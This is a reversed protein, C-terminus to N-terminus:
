DVKADQEYNAAPRGPGDPRAALFFQGARGSCNKKRGPEARTIKKSGARDAYNKDPGARSTSIKDAGHQGPGFRAAFGLFFLVHILQM